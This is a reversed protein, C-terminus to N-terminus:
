AKILKSTNSQNSNAKVLQNYKVSKKHSGKFKHLQNATDEKAKTLTYLQETIHDKYSLAFEKAKELDEGQLSKSLEALQKLHEQAIKAYDNCLSIDDQELEHSLACEAEMIKRILTDLDM